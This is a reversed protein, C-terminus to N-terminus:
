ARLSRVLEFPEAYLCGAVSGWYQRRLWFQHVSRPHPSPRLEAEYAELALAAKEVDDASLENFVNPAFGPAGFNWESSSPSDFAYVDRVPSTGPRTATLVARHTIEHDINLDNRRHTYLTEPKLTEIAKEVRRVIHLLPVTDMLNDLFTGEGWVAAGLLGAAKWMARTGKGGERGPTMFLMHVVSPGGKQRARIITGGIGLVEDDPHAVVVLTTM